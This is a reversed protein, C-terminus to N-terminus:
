WTPPPPYPCRLPCALSCRPSNHREFAARLVPLKTVPVSFADVLGDAGRYMQIYPLHAVNVVVRCFEPFDDFNIRLFTVDPCNAAFQYLKPTVSHCAYCAFKWFWLAVLGDQMERMRMTLVLEQVSHINLVNPPAEDKILKNVCAGPTWSDALDILMQRIEDEALDDVELCLSRGIMQLKGLGFEDLRCVSFGLADECLAGPSCLHLTPEELETSSSAFEKMSAPLSCKWGRGGRQEPVPQLGKRVKRVRVRQLVKTKLAAGRLPLVNSHNSAFCLFMKDSAGGSHLLANSAFPAAM